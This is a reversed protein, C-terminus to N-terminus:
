DYPKNKVAFYLDRIFQAVAQITFLCFGIWVM